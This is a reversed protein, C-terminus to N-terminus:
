TKISTLRRVDIVVWILALFPPEQTISIDVM